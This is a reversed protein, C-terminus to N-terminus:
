TRVVRLCWHLLSPPERKRQFRHVAGEVLILGNGLIRRLLSVFPAPKEYDYSNESLVTRLTEHSTPLVVSRNFFSRFHLLGENPVENVMQRLKEGPPKSFQYRGHGILFNGGTPGPLTRLPNLLFPHIFWRYTLALTTNLLLLHFSLRGLGGTPRWQLAFHLIAYGEAMSFLAVLMLYDRLKAM